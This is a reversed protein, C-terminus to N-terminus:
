RAVTDWTVIVRSVQHLFDGRRGGTILILTLFRTVLWKGGAGAGGKKKKLFFPEGKKIQVKKFIVPEGKIAQM